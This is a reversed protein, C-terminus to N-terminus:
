RIIKSHFINVSVNAPPPTREKGMWFTIPTKSRRTCRRQLLIRATRGLSREERLLLEEFFFEEKLPEFVPGKGIYESFDVEGELGDDFAIHFVCGYRYEISKVDNLNWM